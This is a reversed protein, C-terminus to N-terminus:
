TDAAVVLPYDGPRLHDGEESHIPVTHGYARRAARVLMRHNAFDATGVLTHDWPKEEHTAVNRLAWAQDGAEQVYMTLFQADFGLELGNYNGFREAGREYTM